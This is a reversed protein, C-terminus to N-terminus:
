EDTDRKTANKRDHAAWAVLLAYVACAGLIQAALALTM